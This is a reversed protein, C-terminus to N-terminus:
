AGLLSGIDNSGMGSSLFATVHYRPDVGGRCRRSLVQRPVQVAVADGEQSGPEDGAFTKEM